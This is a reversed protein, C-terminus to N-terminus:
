LRTMANHMHQQMARAAASGDRDRLAALITEHEAVARHRYEVKDRYLHQLQQLLDTISAMFVRFIPNGTSRALEMHFDMDHRIYVSRNRVSRRMGAVAQELARLNEATWAAAALQAISAELHLRAQFIDELEVDAQIRLLPSLMGFLSALDLQKVFIGKGHRVEVIGLGKLLCLAERLPLRSVGVMEVLRRESPLRDGARLGNAAIYQILAHAIADVVTERRAIPLTEAVPVDASRTRAPPRAAEYVSIVVQGIPYWLPASRDLAVGTWLEKRM